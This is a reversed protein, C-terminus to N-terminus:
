KIDGERKLVAAETIKRCQPKPQLKWKTDMIARTQPDDPLTRCTFYKWNYVIKEKHLDYALISTYINTGLLVSIIVGYFLHVRSM